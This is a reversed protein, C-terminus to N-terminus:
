KVNSWTDGRIISCIAGNSVGYRAALEKSNTRRKNRARFDRRIARVDDPTLKAGNRAARGRESMERMNDARTGLHLHAPNVCKRNDCSHLVWMGDPIEGKAIRYARQHTASQKRMFQVHGYGDYRYAGMWHWCGNPATRDVKSWFAEVAQQYTFPKNGGRLFKRQHPMRSTLAATARSNNM